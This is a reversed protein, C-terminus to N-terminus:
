HPVYESWKTALLRLDESEDPLQFLENFEPSGVTLWVIAPWVNKLQGFERPDDQEIWQSLEPKARSSIVYLPTNHSVADALELLPRTLDAAPSPQVTALVRMANEIMERISRTRLLTNQAGCIAVGIRGQVATGLNLLVTAGFSLVIECLDERALDQAIEQPPRYLDLVMAFDRNDPQEFQKVIPYGHKASTRWHILKQSDGSRWRRLAYFDDGALGRRKLLADSGTIVSRVRRDWVPTLNGLQPAVYLLETSDIAIRTVILGFPFRTELRAPGFQYVGRRSFYLRSTAVEQQQANVSSLQLRVNYSPRVSREFGAASSLATILRSMMPPESVGTNNGAGSFGSSRDLPESKQEALSDYVEIGWASINSHNFCIWQLNSLQKAHVRYPLSRRAALSRGRLVGLRWNILLPAIMMGSMLILLNVNRLVSGISIFALIVLYIWGESTIQTTPPTKSLKQM